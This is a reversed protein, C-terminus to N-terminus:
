NPQPQGSRAILQPNVRIIKPFDVGTSSIMSVALRGMKEFDVAMTSFGGERSLHPNINDYGAVAVHAGKEAFYRRAGDAVYDNTSFVADPITGTAHVKGALEAGLEQLGQGPEQRITIVSTKGRGGGNEEIGRLFGKIRQPYNEDGIDISIVVFSRHGQAYLHNAMAYGGAFDDNFIGHINKPTREFGVLYHNLYVFRITPFKEALAMGTKLERWSLMLVGSLEMDHRGGYFGVAEAGNGNIFVSDLHTKRAEETIGRFIASQVLDNEFSSLGDAHFIGCIKQRTTKSLAQGVFVGKRPRIFCMGERVLENVGLYATRTSVNAMAALEGITPLMTGAEPKEQLIFSRLQERIQLHLPTPSAHEIKIALSHM